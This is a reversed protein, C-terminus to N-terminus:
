SVTGSAIMVEITKWVLTDHVGIRRPGPPVAAAEIRSLVIRM